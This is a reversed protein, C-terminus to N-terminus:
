QDLKDEVAPRPVERLYHRCSGGGHHRRESAQAVLLV